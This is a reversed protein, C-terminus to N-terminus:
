RDEKIASSGEKRGEKGEKGERILLFLPNNSSRPLRAHLFGGRVSRNRSDQSELFGPVQVDFCAQLHSAEEEEEEKMMMMM